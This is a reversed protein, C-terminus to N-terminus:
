GSPQRHRHPVFAPQPGVGLAAVCSRARTGRLPGSCLSLCDAGGGGRRETASGKQWWSQMEKAMADQVNGRRRLGVCRATGRSKLARAEASPTLDKQFSFEVKFRATHQLSIKAALTPDVEWQYEWGPAVNEWKMVECVRRPWMDKCHPVSSAM